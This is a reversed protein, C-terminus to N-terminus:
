SGRRKLAHKRSSKEAPQPCGITVDCRKAFYGLAVQGTGPNVLDTEIFFGHDADILFYDVATVPLSTKDLGFTSNSFRGFSDPCSTAGPPCAFSGTLTELTPPAQFANVNDDDALGSLIGGTGGQNLTATMQGTGDNEALSLNQQTFGVGYLEGNGFSLGSAPQQQPYGIGVGMAPYRQNGAAAYLTLVPAGPTGPPATLYLFLSPDFFPVPAPIFRMHVRGIGQNDLQCVGTVQATLQAPGVGTDLPFTDTYGSFNGSGDANVVDVSTLSSPPGGSLDMGLIDFAYQGSFSMFTGTASGQGIAPGATLYGNFGNAATDDSEILRIHSADVIYGTFQTPGFPNPGSCSTTVLTFTVVGPASLSVSSGALGTKPPCLTLGPTTSSNYDQDALSGIGSISGPSDINLVGGVAIPAGFSDTGSVAFAYGAAPLTGAAAPDQLELTGVSSNSDSSSHLEALLAKSSSLVILSFTETLPNGSQDTTALTITGRGDTGVFYSSSGCSAGSSGSIPTTVSGASVTNLTQQGSTIFGSCADGTGDLALMGAIQYPSGNSDSGQAQFVYTGNLVTGFATVSLPALVNKALDATAYAVIQLNMVNGPVLFTSPPRYTITDGSNSHATLEGDSNALTGCPNNPDKLHACPQPGCNPGQCVLVITWDVGSNTPDNTVTASFSASGGLPIGSPPSTQFSISVNQAPPPGPNQVNLTSGGGCGTLLSIATLTLAIVMWRTTPV